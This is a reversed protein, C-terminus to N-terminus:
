INKSEETKNELDKIWITKNKLEDEGIVACFKAQCKDAAKLHAKLSKVSNNMIVKENKRMKSSELFIPTIAEECMAGFYYGERKDNPMEILELLREIGMAFGIAPTARGDLFEVLKDYRGGGAVANQAGLDGSVFEFASKSYYDLGRVLNSDIEYSINKADLLSLLTNFDNQCSKCLNNKLRPAPTLLEQCNPNKCDFVRIPNTEKRRKCDDCLEDCSNLFSILTQRYPTMCSDCGLSNVKLTSKINFNDLIEQAMVIINADEIPSNEGFCELGFQHFQRFRGKQPREYRFMPGHYFFRYTGGKRDLKNEVFSRVVGATGEPRMCVDNNGKDIFQYMEKGVIDSSEGVSRKFLSTEELIPTEIYEFGYKKVIKTCENIFYEYKKNQPPLTDKMGRLIKIM